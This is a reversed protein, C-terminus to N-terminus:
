NTGWCCAAGLVMGITHEAFTAQSFSSQTFCLKAPFLLCLHWLFSLMDLHLLKYVKRSAKRNPTVWCKARICIWRIGNIRCPEICLLKGNSVKLQLCTHSPPLTEFHCVNFILKNWSDQATCICTCFIGSFNLLLFNFGDKFMDWSMEQNSENHVSPIKLENTQLLLLDM